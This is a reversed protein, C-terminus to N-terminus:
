PNELGLHRAMVNLASSAFVRAQEGDYQDVVERSLRNFQGRTIRVEPEQIEWDDATLDEVTETCPTKWMTKFDVAPRWWNEGALKHWSKRRYPRGSKVADILNV